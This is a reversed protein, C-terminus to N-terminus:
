QTVGALPHAGRVTGHDERKEIKGIGQSRVANLTASGM